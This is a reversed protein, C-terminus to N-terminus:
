PTAPHGLPLDRERPTARPTPFADFAVDLGAARARDIMGLADVYSPWTQRGVFILHSIQLRVGTAARAARNGQDRGPQSIRRDPRDHLCRQDWSYAKLHSTFLKGQSAAWRAFQALEEEQAFIGPPYGLGTSVGICGADLAERTLAEMQQTRRGNTRRPEAAGDGGRACRDTAWWSRSENLVSAAAISRTSSNARRAGASTSPEDVILRSAERAAACNVDTITGPQFRLQRGVLSTIGQRIFPEIL